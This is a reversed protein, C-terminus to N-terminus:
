NSEPVNESSFSIRWKPCRFNQFNHRTKLKCKEINQFQEAFNLLEYIINSLLDQTNIYKMENFHQTEKLFSIFISKFHILKMPNYQAIQSLSDIQTTLM